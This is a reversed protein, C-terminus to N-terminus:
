KLKIKKETINVNRIEASIDYYKSETLHVSNRNNGYILKNFVRM